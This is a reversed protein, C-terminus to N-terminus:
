NVACFTSLRQAANLILDTVDDSSYYSNVTSSFCNEAICCLAVFVSLLLDGITRQMLYM